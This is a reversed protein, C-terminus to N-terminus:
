KSHQTIVFHDHSIQLKQMIKRGTPIHHDEFLVRTSSDM